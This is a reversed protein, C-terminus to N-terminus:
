RAKSRQKKYVDLLDGYLVDLQYYIEYHLGDQEVCYKHPEKHNEGFSRCRECFDKIRYVKLYYFHDGNEKIASNIQVWFGDQIMLEFLRHAKEWDSRIKKIVRM